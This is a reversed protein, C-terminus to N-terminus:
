QYSIRPDLAAYLLDVLLNTFVFIISVFLVGAQILPYDRAGIATVLVLGVGSWAFVTEIIVAGALLSGLQLGVVTVLPILTNKLAHRLVVSPTALGKARATRIYDENLVDLMGSRTLRMVIAMLGVGLTVAPLVLHAPTGYGSTPLWRLQVAFLLILMLGLWYGPLSQGLLALLTGLYDLISDRKIAALIGIPIALTLSIVLAASALLLTRPLHEAIIQIVPKRYYLSRGFDGQVAHQLFVGYQVLLPKDLGLRERMSQREEPLADPPLMLDVPDGPALRALFFVVLTLGIVVLGAQALRRQVYTAM